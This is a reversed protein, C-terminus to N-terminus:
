KEICGAFTDVQQTELDVQQSILYSYRTANAVNSKNMDLLQNIEKVFETCMDRSSIKTSIPDFKIAAPNTYTADYADICPKGHITRDLLNKRAAFAKNDMAACFESVLQKKENVKPNKTVQEKVKSVM